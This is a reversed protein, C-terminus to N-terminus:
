CDANMFTSRRVHYLMENLSADKTPQRFVLQGNADATCCIQIASDSSLIFREYISEIDDDTRSSALLYDIVVITEDRSAFHFGSADPIYCDGQMAFAYQVLKDIRGNAHLYGLILNAQRFTSALQFPIMDGPTITARARYSESACLLLEALLVDEAPSSKRNAPVKDPHFWTGDEHSAFYEIGDICGQLEDRIRSLMSSDWRLKLSPPNLGKERYAIDLRETYSAIRARAQRRLALRQSPERESFVPSRYYTLYDALNRPRFTTSGPTMRCHESLQSSLCHFRIPADETEAYPTRSPLSALHNLPPGPLLDIFTPASGSKCGKELREIDEAPLYFLAM